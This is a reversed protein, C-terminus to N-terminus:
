PHPTPPAGVSRCVLRAEEEEEQLGGKTGKLLSRSSLVEDGAENFAKIQVGTILLQGSYILLAM